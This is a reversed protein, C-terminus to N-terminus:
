EKGEREREEDRRKERIILTAIKYIKLILATRLLFHHWRITKEQSNERGQITPKDNKRQLAAHMEENKQQLILIHEQNIRVQISRQIGGDKCYSKRHRGRPEWGHIYKTTKSRRTANLFDLDSLGPHLCIPTITDTQVSKDAQMTSKTKHM